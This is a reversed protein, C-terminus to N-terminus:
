LLAHLQGAPTASWFWVCGAWCRLGRQGRQRGSHGATCCLRLWCCVLAFLLSLLCSSCCTLWSGVAFLLLCCNLLFCVFAFPLCSCVTHQLTAAFASALRAKGSVAARIISCTIHLCNACVPECEFLDVPTTLAIYDSQWAIATVHLQTQYQVGQDSLLASFVYGPQSVLCLSSHTHSPDQLAHKWCAWNAWSAKTCKVLCTLWCCHVQFDPRVYPLSEDHEPIYGLKKKFFRYGTVTKTKCKQIEFNPISLKLILKTVRSLIWSNDIKFLPEPWGSSRVISGHPCIIQCSNAAIQLLDCWFIALLCSLTQMCNRLPKASMVWWMEHMFITLMCLLSRKRDALSLFLRVQSCMWCRQWVARSCQRSKNLGDSPLRNSDAWWWWEGTCCFFAFSSPFLFLFFVDDDDNMHADCIARMQWWNSKSHWKINDTTIQMIKYALSALMSCFISMIGVLHVRDFWNLSWHQCVYMVGYAVHRLLGVDGWPHLLSSSSLPLRWWSLYLMLQSTLGSVLQAHLLCLHWALSSSNCLSVLLNFENFDCHVLGLEALRAM